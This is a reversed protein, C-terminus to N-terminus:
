IKCNVFVKSLVAKNVGIINKTLKNMITFVLKAKDPTNAIVTGKM